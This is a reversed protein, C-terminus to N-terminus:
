IKDNNRYDDNGFHIVDGRSLGLTKPDFIKTYNKHPFKSNSYKYIKDTENWTYKPGDKENIIADYIFKDDNEHLIPM